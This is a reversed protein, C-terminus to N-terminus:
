RVGGRSPAARARPCARASGGVSGIPPCAHSRREVGSGCAPRDVRLQPGAHRAQPQEPRRDLRDLAVQRRRHEHQAVTVALDRQDPDVEAHDAHGLGAAQPRRHGIREARGDRVDEQVEAVDVARGRQGLEHRHGVRGLVHREPRPVLAVQLAPEDLGRHLRVTPQLRGPDATTPPLARDADVPALGAVPAVHQALYGVVRDVRGDAHDADVVEVAVRDGDGKAVGGM